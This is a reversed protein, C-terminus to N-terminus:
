EAAVDLAVDRQPRKPMHEHHPLFGDFGGM